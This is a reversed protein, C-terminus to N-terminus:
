VSILRCWEQEQTGVDIYVYMYGYFAYALKILASGKLDGALEFNDTSVEHKPLPCCWAAHENELIEM